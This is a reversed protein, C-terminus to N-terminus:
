FYWTFDPHSGIFLISLFVFCLILGFFAQCHGWCLRAFYECLSRAARRRGRRCWWSSCPRTCPLTLHLPSGLHLLLLLGGPHHHAHPPLLLVLAPYPVGVSLIGHLDIIGQFIQLITKIFYYIELLASPPGRERTQGGMPVISFKGACTDESDGKFMEGLWKSTM